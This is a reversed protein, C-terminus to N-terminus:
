KVIFPRYENEEDNLIRKGHKVQEAIIKRYTLQKQLPMYYYQEELKAEFKEIVKKLGDKTLLVGKRTSVPEEVNENQIDLPYDDDSSSFDITRFDDPQLIGLNFASVTFTDCLPVRFEELLDFVLSKRGYEVTHLYGVYTDMGESIIYSEIIHNVLTYTFSLVANVNDLPPNMSRGNFQVWQPQIAYKLAGFYLRSAAGEYGRIENTHNANPLKELINKLSEVCDNMQKVEKHKRKIRSAFALQNKIKGEVISKCWRIIFDGDNLKEYQKKRLLVNKSDDFVLKANFFGNKNLFIVEIKNHMLLKFADPTIEINGIVYIRETNHPFFKAVTGDPYLFNFIRNNKYLKGYDSILYIDAMTVGRLFIICCAPKLGAAIFHKVRM